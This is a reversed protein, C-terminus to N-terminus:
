CYRFWSNLSVASSGENASDKPAQHTSPRKGGKQSAPKEASKRVKDISPDEKSSKEEGRIEKPPILPPNDDMKLLYHLTKTRLYFVYKSWSPTLKCQTPAHM